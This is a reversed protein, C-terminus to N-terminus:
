DTHNGDLSLTGGIMMSERNNLWPGSGKNGNATFSRLM